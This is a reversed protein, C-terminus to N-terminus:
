SNTETNVMIKWQKTDFESSYWYDRLANRRVQHFASRMPAESRAQRYLPTEIPSEMGKQKRDRIDAFYRERCLRSCVTSHQERRNLRRMGKYVDIGHGLDKRLTSRYSNGASHAVKKCYDSYAPGARWFIYRPLPTSWPSEWVRRMRLVPTTKWIRQALTQYIASSTAKLTGIARERRRLYAYLIDRTRARPTRLYDPCGVRTSSQDQMVPMERLPSCAASIRRAQLQIPQHM